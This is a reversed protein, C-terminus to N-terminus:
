SGYLLVYHVSSVAFFPSNIFRLYNKVWCAIFKRLHAYAYGRQCFLYDADATKFIIRRCCFLVFRCM